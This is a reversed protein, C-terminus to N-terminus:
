SKGQPTVTAPQQPLPQPSIVVTRNATIDTIVEPQLATTGDTAPTPVGAVQVDDGRKLSGALAPSATSPVLVVTGNELRFGTVLGSKDQIVAAVRARETVVVPTKPKLTSAWVPNQPMPNANIAVHTDLDTVTVAMLQKQGNAGTTQWFGIVQIPSGVPMQNFVPVGISPRFAVVTGDKLIVGDVTDNTAHRFSAIVGKVSDLVTGPAAQLPLDAPHEPALSVAPQPRTADTAALSPAAGMLGMSIGLLAVAWSYKVRKDESSKM